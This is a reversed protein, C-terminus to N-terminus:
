TSRWGRGPAQLGRATVTEFLCHQLTVARRKSDAQLLRLEDVGDRANGDAVHATVAAVRLDDRETTGQRLSSSVSTASPDRIRHIYLLRRLRPTPCVAAKRPDARCQTGRPARTRPCGQRRIRGSHRRRRSHRGPHGLPFSRSDSRRAQPPLVPGVQTGPLSHREGSSPSRSASRPSVSSAGAFRFRQAHTSPHALVNELGSTSYDVLLARLPGHHGM